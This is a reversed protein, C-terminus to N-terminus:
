PSEKRGARGEPSAGTGDGSAGAWDPGLLAAFGEGVTRARLLAEGVLVGDAGARDLAEIAERERYGSEAIRVRDTPLLPLLSEAHGARVELSRLDRNNVGIVSGKIEIARDIESAEHVEVLPTVGLASAIAAYDRLRARELLAVILLVADAGRAGAEFVQREDVVFDKMLVPVAVRNRVAELHEIAGRFRSPETLVSIAAAGHAAYQEALRAPDYGVRLTGASPSSEKVEAVVRLSAGPPRRLAAVFPRRDGRRAEAEDRLVPLPPGAASDRRVRELRERGMASLFDSV